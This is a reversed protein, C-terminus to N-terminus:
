PTVCGMADLRGNDWIRTSCIRIEGRKKLTFVKTGSFMKKSTEFKEEKTIKFGDKLLDNMNREEASM